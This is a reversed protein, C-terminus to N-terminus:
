WQVVEWDNAPRPNDLIRSRRDVRGRAVKRLCGRVAFQKM